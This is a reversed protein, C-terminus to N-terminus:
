GKELQGCTYTAKSREHISKLYDKYDEEPNNLTCLFNHSRSM